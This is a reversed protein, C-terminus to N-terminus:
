TKKTWASCWGKGAVRKNGFAACSAAADSAKGQFLACGSCSQAASYNPYKQKDVKSADAKYGLAVATPDTEAVMEPTQANISKALAFASLAGASSLAQIFFTRRTNKM